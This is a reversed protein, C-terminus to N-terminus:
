AERPLESLLHGRPALRGSADSSIYGRYYGCRRRHEVNMRRGRERVGAALLVRDVAIAGLTRNSSRLESASLAAPRTAGVEGRPKGVWTQLSIDV